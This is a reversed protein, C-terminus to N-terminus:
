ASERLSDWEKQSMVFPICYMRKVMVYGVSFALAFLKGYEDYRVINKM